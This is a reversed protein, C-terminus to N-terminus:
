QVKEKPITVEALFGPIPATNPAIVQGTIRAVRALPHLLTTQVPTVFDDYFIINGGNGNCPSPQCVKVWDIQMSSPAAASTAASTAAINMQLFMPTSPVDASSQDCASQQVGDLWWTVTGSVWRTEYIHWNVSSDTVSYGTNSRTNVNFFFSCTSTTPSSSGTEEFIDFEESGTSHWNCATGAFTGNDATVKSNAECNAGLMFITPWAGNLTGSPGKARILIDGFTFSFTNMQVFGSIFASTFNQTGVQNPWYHCTMVVKKLLLTLYGGQITVQGPTYCETESNSQDGARYLAIWGGKNRGNIVLPQCYAYSQISGSTDSGSVSCGQTQAFCPSALFLFLLFRKM